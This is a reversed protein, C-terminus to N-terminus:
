QSSESHIIDVHKKEWREQDAKRQRHTRKVQTVMELARRIGKSYGTRELKQVVWEHVEIPSGAAGGSVRLPFLLMFIGNLSSIHTLFEVTVGRQSLAEQSAAGACIGIEM